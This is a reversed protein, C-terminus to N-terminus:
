LAWFETMVHEEHLTQMLGRTLRSGGRSAGLWTLVPVVVAPAWPGCGGSQGPVFNVSWRWSLAAPPGPLAQGELCRGCAKRLSEPWTHVAPLGQGDPSHACVLEKM